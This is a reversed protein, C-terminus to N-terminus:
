LNTIIILTLASLGAMVKATDMALVTFYWCDNTDPITTPASSTVTVELDCKGVSSIIGGYPLQINTGAQTCQARSTVNKGTPDSAPYTWYTYTASIESSGCTSFYEFKQGFEAKSVLCSQSANLSLKWEYPFTVCSPSSICDHIRIDSDM